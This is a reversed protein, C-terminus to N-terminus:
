DSNIQGLLCWFTKLPESLRTIQVSLKIIYTVFNTVRRIKQDYVSHGTRQQLDRADASASYFVSGSYYRMLVKLPDRVSYQGRNKISLNFDIRIM